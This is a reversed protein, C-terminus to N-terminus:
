SFFYKCHQWYGQIHSFLLHLDAPTFPKEFVGQVQLQYARKIENEPIHDGLLIFPCHVGAYLPDEMLTKKLQLGSEGKEHLECIILAPSITSTQLHQLMESQAAYVLLPNKLDLEKILQTLVEQYADRDDADTDVIVIPNRNHM